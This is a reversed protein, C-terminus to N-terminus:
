ITIYEIENYYDGKAIVIKKQKKANKYKDRLIQIQDYDLYLKQTEGKKLDKNAWYRRKGKTSIILEKTIYKTLYNSAKLTNKIESVTTFGLKYDDMNYIKSGKIQKGSDVLKINGINTILGHFHYAGDKHLEPVIIYKMEPSKRRKTNDLWYKMRRSLDDYDYRSKVKEKNFTWTVFYEWVNARAYDYICNVTRNRSSRISAIEKKIEEDTKNTLGNETEAAEADGTFSEDDIWDEIEEDEKKRIRNKQIPNSYFVIDQEGTDEYDVIKM